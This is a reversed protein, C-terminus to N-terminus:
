GHIRAIITFPLYKGIPEGFKAGLWKLWRISDSAKADTVGVITPYIKLMEEILRQSYRVFIFKHEDVASTSYLWLYAEDSLLSPPVLGWACAIKDNIEGIWLHTAFGLCADLTKSEIDTLIGGKAFLILERTRQRDIPQISVTM